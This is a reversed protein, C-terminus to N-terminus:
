ELERIWTHAPDDSWSGFRRGSGALGWLYYLRYGPAAVVPHYGRPIVVADGHEVVLGQDLRDPEAADTYIRQLGFGQPPDIMFLYIEEYPEEQPPHSTDHKHPPYSSWSGPLNYTEGVLLRDAEVEEGLGICAERRWNAAGFSRRKQEAARICTPSTDRRAPAAFVAADLGGSGAEVRVHANRPAYVMTPDGSFVDPRDGADAYLERGRGEPRVRFSGRGSLITFCLERGGTEVEWSGGSPLCVRGLELLSLDANQPGAIPNYGPELPQAKYLLRESAEAPM